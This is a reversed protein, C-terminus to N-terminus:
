QAHGNHRDGAAVFQPQLRETRPPPPTRVSGRTRKTEEEVLSRLRKLEALLGARGEQLWRLREKQERLRGLEELLVQREDHLHALREQQERLIALREKGDQESRDTNGWVRWLVALITVSLGLCLGALFVTMWELVLSDM